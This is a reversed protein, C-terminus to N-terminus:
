SNKAIKEILLVFIVGFIALLTSVMLQPAGQAAYEWPLVNHWGPALSESLLQGSADLKWPWIITLSGLLIGTLTALLRARYHLLLWSLLRVFLLLGVACGTVFSFLSVVELQKVANIVPEYMGLLLLIFSGSIGPLIMACIALAGSLFLTLPTAALEAPRLEGIAVAFVVGFVLWGLQRGGQPIQRYVIIASALILGFFLAALPVPYEQLGYSILRALSVVSAVVGLLLSILFNGNVSQWFALPGSKFLTKLAHINCSKLSEILEDYIGTIFAITGGSVGPVVDAAGMAMGRIFTGLSFGQM